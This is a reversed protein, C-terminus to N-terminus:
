FQFPAVSVSLKGDSARQVTFNVEKSAKTGNVTASIAGTCQLTQKDASESVTVMKDGLLYLPKTDEPTPKNVADAPPHSAAYAGLRNSHDDSIVKLVASRAEPTDCEPRASDCGGLLILLPFSWSFPSPRCLFPRCLYPMLM